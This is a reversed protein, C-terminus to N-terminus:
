TRYVTGGEELTVQNQEYTRFADRAQKTRIRNQKWRGILNHIWRRM